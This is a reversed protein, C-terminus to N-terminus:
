HEIQRFVSKSAGCDPCIWDFPLAAFPTGPAILEAPEGTAEDYISSCRRCEHRHAQVEIFEAQVLHTIVRNFLRQVDQSAPRSIIELFSGYLETLTRENDIAFWLEEIFPDVEIKNHGNHIMVIDGLPDPYKRFVAGIRRTVNSM